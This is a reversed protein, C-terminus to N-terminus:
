PAMTRRMAPDRAAPGNVGRDPWKAVCDRLADEIVLLRGFKAIPVDFREAWDAPTGPPLAARPRGPLAGAVWNAVALTHPCGYALFRAECVRDQTVRLSFRVRTGTAERGAEGRVIDAGDPLSGAHALTDFAERAAPSLTDGVDNRVARPTSM